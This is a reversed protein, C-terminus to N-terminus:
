GANQLSAVSFIVHFPQCYIVVSGLSAVDVEAPIEYNQNGKNGKISGLDVYGTASVDDRNQPNAIPTLIVHLDPGNTVDFDELRLLLSGDGGRYITATGSGKHFNDADQFSGTKLAIPETAPQEEMASQPMIEDVSQNIKAMGSMVQEVEAQTMDAPVVAAASLPFAEDVSRNIFLPSLLWWAAVAVLIIIVAGGGAALIKLNM